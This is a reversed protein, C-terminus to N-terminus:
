SAQAMPRRALAERGWLWLAGLGFFVVVLNLLLGLGILGQSLPFSFLAITIVTIAVGIIMPWYRNEALPSKSSVLIWKGLAMGFVIKAVFSTMLVFGVILAFLGVLGLWIITGSLSGLTLLGFLVAGLISVFVILLLSFLFAAYSVLGWGLSHWPQSQLNDALKKIFLPFLWLLFLGILILTVLSRILNFGWDAVKNGAREEPRPRSPNAPPELKTVQGAVVGAPFALEHTQTYQLDGAIKASPDITLGPRVIPVPITTQMFMTPPPGAQNQDAEGVEAKVNGGVNGRIEFSGTAVMVNRAVDGALLIQGGAFVLDRRVAGGNRAELSYGAGVIDGGVSSKEGLFLVSGAARVDGTVSGNIVVTQGAVLLDGNVTGNITVMQAFAVVDGNVTGDLAFETAGVYLDDNITEGAQVVVKDGSRGDFAHAPTAFTLTFLVFLTLISFIKHSRSM